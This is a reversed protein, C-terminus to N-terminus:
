ARLCGAKWGKCQPGTRIIKQIRYTDHGHLKRRCFRPWWSTMTHERDMQEEDLCLCYTIAESHKKGLLFIIQPRLEVLHAAGEAHHGPCGGHAKRWTQGVQRRGRSGGKRFRLPGWANRM